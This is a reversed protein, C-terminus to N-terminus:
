GVVASAGGVTIVTGDAKQCWVELHALQRSGEPSFEKIVGRASVTEGMWLINVLNVSM